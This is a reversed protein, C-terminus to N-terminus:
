NPHTTANVLQQHFGAYRCALLLLKYLPDIPLALRECRFRSVDISGLLVSHWSDVDDDGLFIAQLM